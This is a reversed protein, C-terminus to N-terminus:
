PVNIIPQRFRIHFVAVAFQRDRIVLLGQSQVWLIRVGYCHEFLEACGSAIMFRSRTPRRPKLPTMASSRTPGISAKVVAPTSSASPWAPVSYSVVMMPRLLFGNLDSDPM